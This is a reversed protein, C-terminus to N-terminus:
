WSRWRLVSSRVRQWHQAVKRRALDTIWQRLEGRTIVYYFLKANRDDKLVLLTDGSIRSTWLEACDIRRITKLPYQKTLAPTEHDVFFAAHATNARKM